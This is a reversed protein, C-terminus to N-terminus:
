YKILEKDVFNLKELVSDQVQQSDSLTRVISDAEFGSTSSRVTYTNSDAHWELTMALTEGAYLDLTGADTEVVRTITGLFSARSALVPYAAYIEELSRATEGQSVEGARAEVGSVDSNAVANGSSSIESSGVESPQIPAAAPKSSGGSSNGCAAMFLCAAATLVLKGYRSTNM